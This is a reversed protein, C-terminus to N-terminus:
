LIWVFYLICYIYIYTYYILSKSLSVKVFTNSEPDICVISPWFPYKGLKVWVIDGIIYGYSEVFNQDASNQGNSLSDASVNDVSSNSLNTSGDNELINNSLNSKEPSVKTKIESDAM